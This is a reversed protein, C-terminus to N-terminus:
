TLPLPASDTGALEWRDRGNEKARYLAADAANLLEPGSQAHEPFVAIGLSLTVGPVQDFKAKLPLGRMGLRLSEARQQAVEATADPLILCFEEGGYRCAIDEVRVQALLFEGLAKLVMDGAEHGYTDNFRKFFDVDIMIVSLPGARRKAREIERLLTEDLYRRNFLGTLVDRISQQRLAERLKLSSLALGIQEAVTEALQQHERVLAPLEIPCQLYLLGLTEGHASMPVCLYPRQDGSASVHPCILDTAFNEVRHPSGRRLAWCAILPLPGTEPDTDIEGWRIMPELRDRSPPIEYLTGTWNPFLKGLVHVIVQYAEDPGVCAQLLEGMEGLLSLERTRQELQAVSRALTANVAQMAAEAQKIQSVDTMIASFGIMNGTLDCLPSAAVSVLVGSGDKRRWETTFSPLAEGKELRAFLALSQEEQGPPIIPLPQEFIEAESWGFIQEAAPNWLKVNRALDLQIIALPSSRIITQLRMSSDRLATHTREIEGAMRNFASGLRNLERTTTAPIRSDLRGRELQEVGRTLRRVPILMWRRLLLYQLGAQLMFLLILSGSAQMFLTHIRGQAHALSVDVSVAGIVNANQLGSIVQSIRMYRHGARSYYLPPTEHHPNRMLEILASQDTVSGVALGDSDAVVRLYHNVVSMRAIDPFTAVFEDVAQSLSKKSNPQEETELLHVERKLVQALLTVTVQGKYRMHQYVLTQIGLYLILLGCGAVIIFGGAQGALVRTVLSDTLGKM